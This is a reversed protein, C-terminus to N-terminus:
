SRPMARNLPEPRREDVPQGDVLGYTFWIEWGLASTISCLVQHSTMMMEELIIPAITM